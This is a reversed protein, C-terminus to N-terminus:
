RTVAWALAVVFAGAILGCFLGVKFGWDFGIDYIYRRTGISVKTAEILFPMNKPDDLANM